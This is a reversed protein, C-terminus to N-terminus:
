AWADPLLHVPPAISISSRMRKYRWMYIRQCMNFESKSKGNSASPISIKSCGRFQHFITSKVSNSFKFSMKIAMGRLHGRSTTPFCFFIGPPLVTYSLPVMNNILNDMRKTERLSCSATNSGLHLVIVGPVLINESQKEM